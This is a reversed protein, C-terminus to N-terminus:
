LAVGSDKLHETYWAVAMKSYLKAATTNTAAAHIRVARNVESPVFSWIRDMNAIAMEAAPKTESETYTTEVSKTKVTRRKTM